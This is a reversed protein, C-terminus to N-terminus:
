TTLMKKKTLVKPWITVLYAFVDRETNSLAALEKTFKKTSWSRLYSRVLKELRVIDQSKLGKSTFLRGNWPSRDILRPTVIDDHWGQWEKVLDNFGRDSKKLKLGQGNSQMREPHNKYFIVDTTKDIDSIGSELATEFVVEWPMLTDRFVQKVAVPYINIDFM